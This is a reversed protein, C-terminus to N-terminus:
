TVLRKEESEILDMLIPLVRGLKYAFLPPVANGIMEFNAVMSENFEFDDDFTQLRAAERITISRRQKPDPHIHRLGDKKLHAPITNSPENWKLVHYKHINTKKGTREYYLEILADTNSYKNKGTEIDHALEYFIEQDRKNHFRSYHGNISSSNKYAKKAFQKELPYIPPLDALADKVTSKKSVKMNVLIDDYFRRLLYQYDVTSSDKRVGIIIVRKRKQPVGYETLDILAYQRLDNIIEYGIDNFGVRILDIIKEGTPIASLIGEVNEFVIIKPRYHDVIKIYAEFLFNRYDDKMGNTDRIRGALSYAQCPPGGSIVDVSNNGILKDLGKSTGFEHDNEWGKLLEETRQIDFNLVKNSADQDGYKTELRKILTRVQPKLWEVAALLNYNGTQEFGDLLGGAGAFLEINNLKKTM